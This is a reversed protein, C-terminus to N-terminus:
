VEAKAVSLVMASMFVAYGFATSSARELKRLTQAIHRM